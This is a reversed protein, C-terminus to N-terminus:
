DGGESDASACPEWVAGGGVSSACVGFWRGSVSHYDHRTHCSGDLAAVRRMAAQSRLSHALADKTAALQALAADRGAEAKEWEDSLDDHDKRHGRVEALWQGAFAQCSKAGAIWAGPGTDGDTDFGLVAYADWMAQALVDREARAENRQRIAKVLTGAVAAVDTEYSTM